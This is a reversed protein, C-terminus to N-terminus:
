KHPLKGWRTENRLDHIIRKVDQISTLVLQTDAGVYSKALFLRRHLEDLLITSVYKITQKQIHERVSKTFTVENNFNNNLGWLAEFEKDEM